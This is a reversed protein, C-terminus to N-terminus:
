LYKEVPFISFFKSNFRRMFGTEPEHNYNIIEGDKIGTWQLDGKNNLIVKWSNQLSLNEKIDDAIRDALETSHVILGLESNLYISRQNLNFSGVFVVKRDFVISKAHLGFLTNENCANPAEVLHKCSQADPKLEFLEAGNRLLEKRRRVYGSHNTTLDNSALSNTLATVKVGKAILEKLLTIGNDGPVLYATEILLEETTRKAVEMLTNAVQKPTNLNNDDMARTQDYTIEATAWILESFWTEFEINNFLIALNDQQVKSKIEKRFALIEEKDPKNKVLHGISFARENNWYVDFSKSIETVIPGITLLDRDRFNIEHNLDFYEDGINRGGVIAVSGDVIFSKNHMRQNLRKFDGIFGVIKNQSANPNYIRIDINPHANMMLLLTDRNGASFDDLLLRVHIGKDAALLLQQALLRGSKDSNWIYYQLDIAKEAKVLLSVRKLLADHGTNLILFGSKEAHSVSASASLQGLSTELSNSFALSIERENEIKVTACGAIFGGTCGLMILLLRNFYSKIM